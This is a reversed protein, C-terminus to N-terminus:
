MILTDKPRNIATMMFLMDIHNDFEIDDGSDSDRDSDDINPNGEGDPIAALVDLLKHPLVYNDM